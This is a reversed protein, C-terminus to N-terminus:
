IDTRLIIGKEIKLAKIKGVHRYLTAKAMDLEKGLAEHRVHGDRDKVLEFAFLVDEEKKAKKKKALAIKKEQSPEEGDALCDDLFGTDDYQHVPYRFFCNVPKFNAFERLTGEIRWATAITAEQVANAEAEQIPAYNINIQAWEILKNAVVQSDDPCHYRWDKTSKSTDKDLLDAVADCTWRNILQTRQTETINLEILDLIADPDRAFVGSGSSRDHSRKGGQSGKSHHHCYIVTTDLESGIIDFQNCFKAMQEASNEDGTIVKYIPDIIIAAYNKKAARRILRPVLKDLPITKGRLHWMDIRKINAPEIGRAKYAEILRKICSRRDLELNIYLVNGQACQWKIWETGEAIAIAMSILNFSKGAKSPGGILMKHGKRVVGDIQVPALDPPNDYYDGLNEFDPLDDDQEALWENWSEWSAKGINTSILRQPVGARLVGPLRSLRSPNRNAHDVPLGNKKCVDYLFNVRNQYEKYDDAEIRVIAHLSKKGSTVLAAIPLELEKYIAYQRKIDIEDSEVLAYRFDTVNKDFIGQGDLPNFRIWAGCDPEHDGIVPGIANHKKLEKLLQKQTANFRGKSPAYRIPKGEEEIKYSDAVCGVYEDPEFLTELYLKFDAVGNWDASIPPLDEGQLWEKQIIKVNQVPDDHLTMDDWTLPGTDHEVYPPTGGNDKCLKVISGVGVGDRGFGNWKKECEGQRYRKDARSWSEWDAASGGANKIACGVALWDDYKLSVPSFEKLCALAHELDNNM